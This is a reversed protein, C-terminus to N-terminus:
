AEEFLEPTIYPEHKAKLWGGKGDRVLGIFFRNKLINKITDKSFPQPGHTGTTKYGLSNLIIAIERDTKGQAASEFIM